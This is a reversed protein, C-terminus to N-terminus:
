FNVYFVLFLLIKSEGAVNHVLTILQPWCGKFLTQSYIVAFNFDNRIVKVLGFFVKHFFLIKGWHRVWTSLLFSWFDMSFLVPMKFITKIISNHSAPILELFLYNFLNKSFENIKSFSHYFYLDWTTESISWFYSWEEEPWARSELYKFDSLYLTSLM